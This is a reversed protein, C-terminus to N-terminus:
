KKTRKAFLIMIAIAAAIVIIGIEAGRAVAPTIEAIIKEAGVFTIVLFGAALGAALIIAVVTVVKIPNELVKVTVSFYGEVVPSVCLLELKKVKEIRKEITRRLIRENVERGPIIHRVKFHLQWIEGPQMEIDPIRM